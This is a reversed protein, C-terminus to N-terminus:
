GVWLSVRDGMAMGSWVFVFANQRSAKRLGLIFQLLMFYM